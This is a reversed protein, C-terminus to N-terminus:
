VSRPRLKRPPKRRPRSKKLRWESRMQSLGDMYVAAHARANEDPLSKLISVARQLDKEITNATAHYYLHKIAEIKPNSM